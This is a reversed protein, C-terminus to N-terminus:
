SDAPVHRPCRASPRSTAHSFPRDPTGGRGSIAIDALLPNEGTLPRLTRAHTLTLCPPLTWPTTPVTFARGRDCIDEIGQEWREMLYIGLTALLTASSADCTMAPHAPRRPKDASSDRLLCRATTHPSLPLRKGRLRWSPRVNTAPPVSHSTAVPRFWRGLIIDYDVYVVSGVHVSTERAWRRSTSLPSATRAVLAGRERGFLFLGSSVSNATKSSGISM